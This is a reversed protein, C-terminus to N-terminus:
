KLDRTNGIKLWENSKASENQIWRTEEKLWENLFSPKMKFGTKKHKSGNM